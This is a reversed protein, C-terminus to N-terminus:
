SAGGGRERVEGRESRWGEREGRGARGKREEVADAGRRFPKDERAGGEEM